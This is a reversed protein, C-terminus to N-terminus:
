PSRRRPRDDPEDDEDEQYEEYEVGYGTWEPEPPFVLAWLRGGTHRWGRALLAVPGLVTLFLTVRCVARAALVARLRLERVWLRLILREARRVRVLRDDRHPRIEDAADAALAGCARVDEVVPPVRDEVRDVTPETEATRQEAQRLAGDSSDIAADLAAFDIIRANEADVPQWDRPINIRSM